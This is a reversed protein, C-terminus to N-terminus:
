LALVCNVGGAERWRKLGIYLAQTNSVSVVRHGCFKRQLRGERKRITLEGDRAQAEAYILRGSIDADGGALSGQFSTITM